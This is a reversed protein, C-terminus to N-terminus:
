WGIGVFCGLNIVPKFANNKLSLEEEHDIQTTELVSHDYFANAPLDNLYENQYSVGFRTFAEFFYKSNKNFKYSFSIMLDQQWSVLEAAMNQLYVGGRRSIWFDSDAELRYLGYMLGWRHSGFDKKIESRLLFSRVPKPESDLFSKFRLDKLVGGVGWGLLWHENLRYDGAVELISRPQAILGTLNLKVSYSDYIDINKQSEQGWLILSAGMLLLALLYKM